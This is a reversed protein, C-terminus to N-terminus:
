FPIDDEGISQNFSQDPIDEDDVRESTAEKSKKVVTKKAVTKKAVTKKPTSKGGKIYESVQPVVEDLTQRAIEEIDEVSEVYHSASLVSQGVMAGLDYDSMSPNKEAYEEKLKTTLDHAQKAAEVIADTDEVDALVNMAVNIAHGTHVGSMDRKTTTAPQKFGGSQAAQAVGDMSVITVGSSFGSYQPKGNYDGITVPITIEMGKLLDHYNNDTDKVRIVEKDTLGLGVKDGDVVINVSHTPVWSKGDKGYDKKTKLENFYIASVVGSIIYEVKRTKPNKFEELAM